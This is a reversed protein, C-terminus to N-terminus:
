DDYEAYMSWYNIGREELSNYFERFNRNETEEYQKFFAIQDSLDVVDFEHYWEQPILHSLDKTSNDKFSRSVQRSRKLERKKLALERKRILVKKKDTKSKRLNMLEVQYNEYSM